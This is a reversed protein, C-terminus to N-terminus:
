AVRRMDGNGRENLLEHLHVRLGNTWLQFDGNDLEDLNGKRVGSVELNDAVLEAVIRDENIGKESARILASGFRRAGDNRREGEYLGQDGM